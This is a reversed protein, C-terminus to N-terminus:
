YYFFTFFRHFIFSTSIETNGIHSRNEVSGKTTPCAPTLSQRSQEAKSISTSSGIIDQRELILDLGHKETETGSERERERWTTEAIVKAVSNGVRGLDEEKLPLGCSVLVFPRFIAWRAARIGNWKIKDERHGSCTKGGKGEERKPQTNSGPRDKGGASETACHYRTQSWILLSRTRTVDPDVYKKKKKSMKKNRKSVINNYNRM